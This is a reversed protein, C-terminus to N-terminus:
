FTVRPLPLSNATELVNPILLSLRVSEITAEITASSRARGSRRDPKPSTATAFLAVKKLWFLCGKWLKFELKVELVIFHEYFRLHCRGNTNPM